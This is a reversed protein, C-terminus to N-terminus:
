NYNNENSITIARKMLRISTNHVGKINAFHYLFTLIGAIPIIIFLFTKDRFIQPFHTETDALETNLLTLIFVGLLSFVVIVTSLNSLTSYSTKLELKSDNEKFKVETKVALNDRMKQFDYLLIIKKTESSVKLEKPRKGLRSPKENLIRLLTSLERNYSLTSTM